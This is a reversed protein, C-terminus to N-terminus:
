KVLVGDKNTAESEFQGDNNYCKSVGHFQGDKFSIEANLQSEDYMDFAIGTFLKGQYYM